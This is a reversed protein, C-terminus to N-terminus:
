KNLLVGYGTYASRNQTRIVEHQYTQWKRVLGRCMKHRQLQFNQLNKNNQGLQYAISSAGSGTIISYMIIGKTNQSKRTV